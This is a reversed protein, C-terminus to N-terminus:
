RLQVCFWWMTIRAFFCMFVHVSKTSVFGRKPKKWSIYFPFVKLLVGMGMVWPLICKNTQATKFYRCGPILTSSTSSTWWCTLRWLASVCCWMSRQRLETGATTGEWSRARWGCTPWSKLSDFHLVFCFYCNQDSALHLRSSLFFPFCCLNERQVCIALARSHLSSIYYMKLLLLENGSMACIQVNLPGMM